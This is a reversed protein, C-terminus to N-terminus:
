LCPVGSSRWSFRQDKRRWQCKTRSSLFHPEFRPLKYDTKGASSWSLNTKDGCIGKIRRHLREFFSRSCLPQFLPLLSTMNYMEGNTLPMRLELNFGYMSSTSSLCIFSILLSLPIFEVKSYEPPKRLWRVVPWTTNLPGVRCRAPALRSPLKIASISIHDSDTLTLPTVYHVSINLQSSSCYFYSLQISTLWFWTCFHM